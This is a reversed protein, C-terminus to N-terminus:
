GHKYKNYKFLTYNSNLAKKAGLLFLCSNKNKGNRLCLSVSTKKGKKHYLCLLETLYIISLGEVFDDFDKTDKWIKDIYLNIVEEWGTHFARSSSNGGMTFTDKRENTYYDINIYEPM